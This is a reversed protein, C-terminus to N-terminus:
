YGYCAYINSLTFSNTSEANGKCEDGHIDISNCTRWPSEYYGKSESWKWGPCQNATWVKFSTGDRKKYCCSEGGQNQETKYEAAVESMIQSNLREHARLRGELNGVAAELEDMRLGSKWQMARDDTNGQLLSHQDQTHGACNSVETLGHAMVWTVVGVRCILSRAMSIVRVPRAPSTNLYPRFCRVRKLLLPQLKTISMRALCQM